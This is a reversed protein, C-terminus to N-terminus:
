KKKVAWALDWRSFTQMPGTVEQSINHIIREAMEPAMGASLVAPKVSMAFALGSSKSRDTDGEPCNLLDFFTRKGTVEFRPEMLMADDLTRGTVKRPGVRSEVVNLFHRMWLSMWSKNTNDAGVDFSAPELQAEDVGYIGVNGDGLFLLGGPKLCDCLMRIFAMADTVHGIVCRAHVVDFKETYEEIGTLIDKTVFRCNPPVFNPKSETLDLGIVSAQPFLNAMEVTWIGSGSGVDMVLPADSPNRLEMIQRVLGHVEDPYLGNGGLFRKWMRHQTDLRQLKILM